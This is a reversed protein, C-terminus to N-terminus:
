RKIFHAWMTFIALLFGGEVKVTSFILFFSFFLSVSKSHNSSSFLFIVIFVNLLCLWLNGYNFWLLQCLSAPPPSPSHFSIERQIWLLRQCFVNFSHQCFRKAHIERKVAREMRSSKIVHDWAYAELLEKYLIHLYAVGLSIITM